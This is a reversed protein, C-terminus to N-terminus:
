HEPLFSHVARGVTKHLPVMGSSLLHLSLDFRLRANRPRIRNSLFHAM